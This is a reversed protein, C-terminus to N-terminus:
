RTSRGRGATAGVSSGRRDGLGRPGRPRPKQPRPHPFPRATSGWRGDRALGHATVRAQRAPRLGRAWGARGAPDRRAALRSSAEVTLSSPVGVAARHGGKRTVVVWPERSPVLRGDRRHWAGRLDASFMGLAGLLIVLLEDDPGSAQAAAILAALEAAELGFRPAEVLAPRRLGVAPPRSALVRLWLGLERRSARCLSSARTTLFEGLPELSQPVRPRDSPWPRRPARRRAGERGTERARSWGHPGRAAPDDPPVHPRQGHFRPARRVQGVTRLQALVTSHALVGM